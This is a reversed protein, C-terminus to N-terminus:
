VPPYGERQVCFSLVFLKNVETRATVPALPCGSLYWGEVAALESRTALGPHGALAGFFEEFGHGRCVVAIHM